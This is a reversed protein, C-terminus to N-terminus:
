LDACCFGGKPLDHPQHWSPAWYRAKKSPPDKHRGPMVAIKPVPIHSQWGCRCKSSQDLSWHAPKSVRRKRDDRSPALGVGAALEAADETTEPPQPRRM